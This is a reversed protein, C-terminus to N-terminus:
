IYEHTQNFEKLYKRFAPIPMPKSYYYGQVMDCDANKLLKLQEKTEVGEALVQYGMRKIMKILYKIFVPTKNDEGTYKLFKKDLKIIDVDVNALVNLSSYGSGFDDISIAIGGEKLSRLNGTLKSLDMMFVSETIEVEILSTPISIDKLMNLVNDVFDPRENHRRSFNVSIPVVEEGFDMAERLYLLVQNLVSFDVKTVFGNKEFIPIFSDPYIMSGDVRQWRVLAEAGVIKGSILSIKPQLWAQFEGNELASIMNASISKELENKQRIEQNYLSVVTVAIDKNYKRAINARDIAWSPAEGYDLVESMGSIIIMNSQDYISNMEKCFCETAEQYRARVDEANSGEFLAVFYDSNVRTFCIGGPQKRLHEGFAKLIKDGETYGYRENVYQFNSFDSYTFYYKRNRNERMYQETMVIFKHYQPLGTVPDYNIRYDIENKERENNYILQLHNFLISAMRYLGDKEENWDRDKEKDIFAICERNGYMREPRVLFISTAHSEPMRKIQDGRLIEIGKADFHNWIYNWSEMSTGETELEYKKKLRRSWNYKIDVKDNEYYIYAIDDINYFSCIRDSVMKLGSELDSVNDLLELSFLVLEDTKQIVREERIYEDTDRNLYGTRPAYKVCESSIIHFNNKSERKVKYLAYDAWQFLTTFDRGTGNCEMVGISLSVVLNKDNDRYVGQITSNLIQLRRELNRRDLNESYVIFEDGGIRGVLSEKFFLKLEDAVMCLVADGVLHGNADNIKKFNDIDIIILWDSNKYEKKKIRDAIKDMIVQHNILGTLSDMESFKRLQEERLKREDINNAHGIVRVPKGEFDHITQGEIEIWHYKGDEIKNRFETKIHQKGEHLEKCFHIFVDKDESYIVNKDLPRNTYDSVIFKQKEAGGIQKTFIMCDNVIDYEFLTDMSMEVIVNLKEKEQELQYYTQKVETIDTIVCQLIPKDNNELVVAQMLCWKEQQGEDNVTYEAQLVKANQLSDEINKQLSIWDSTKLLREYHNDYNLFFQEPTMRVLDFLRENAYELILGNDYKFKCVCGPISNMLMRLEHKAAELRKSIDFLVMIVGSVMNQYLYYPRIRLLWTKGGKVIEREILINKLISQNADEFLSDYENMFHVDSLFKGTDSLNLQTNKAMIPTIKRIRMDSDVYLAGIEANVLLNDFDANAKILENIQRDRPDLKKSDSIANDVKKQHVKNMSKSQEKTM